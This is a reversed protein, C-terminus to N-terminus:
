ERAIPRRLGYFWRLACMVVQVEDEAGSALLTKQKLLEVLLYRRESTSRRCLSYHMVPRKDKMRAAAIEM